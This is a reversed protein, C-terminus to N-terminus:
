GSMKHRLPCQVGLRQGQALGHAAIPGHLKRADIVEAVCLFKCRGFLRHAHRSLLPSFAHQALDVARRMPIKIKDPMLQLAVPLRGQSNGHPYMMKGEIGHLALGLPVPRRGDAKLRGPILFVMIDFIVKGPYIRGQGSSLRQRPHSHNVGDLGEPNGVTGAVLRLKQPILQVFVKYVQRFPQYM